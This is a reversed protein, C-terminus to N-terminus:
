ARWLLYTGFGEVGDTHCRFLGGWAGGSRAGGLLSASVRTAAARTTQDADVPWLELGFRTPDGAADYQTSILSEEFPIEDEGQVLWGTVREEDHGDAGPEGAATILLADDEVAVAIQRYIGAGEAPNTAWRCIQGAGDSTRRGGAASVEAACLTVTPGGALALETTRPTLTAELSEDGATLALAAADGGQEIAFSAARPEGDALLVAGPEALDWALGGLGAGPDGFGCSLGGTPRESM